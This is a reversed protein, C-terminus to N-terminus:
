KEVEVFLVLDKGRCIKPTAEHRSVVLNRNTRDVHIGHRFDHVFSNEKKAAKGTSLFGAEQKWLGVYDDSGEVFKVGLINIGVDVYSSTIADMFAASDTASLKGINQLLVRQEEITLYM